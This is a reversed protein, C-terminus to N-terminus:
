RTNSQRDPSRIWSLILDGLGLALALGFVLTVAWAAITFSVVRRRPHTGTAVFLEGGILSPKICDPLAIAIVAVSLKLV